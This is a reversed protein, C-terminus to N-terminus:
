RRWAARGWGADPEEGRGAWGSRAAAWRSLRVGSRHVARGRRAAQPRVGGVSAGMGCWSRTMMPLPEPLESSIGSSSPRSTAITSPPVKPPVQRFTPQMGVLINTSGASRTRRPRVVGVPEADGEGLRRDVPRADAVADEPPDVRDRGAALGVAAPLLVGGEVAGVRGEGTLAAEGQRGALLDGGVPEDDRGAAVGDAEVDVAQARGVGLVADVGGVGHHAEVGERGPHGDDAAPEDGALHRVHEGREAHGHGLHLAALGQQAVVLDLDGLAVGLDGPVAVVHPQRRGRGDASRTPSTQRIPRVPGPPGLWTSASTTSSATPRTGLVSRSSGAAAPRSTCSSPRSTTSSWSRAVAGPTQARPSTEDAWWSLCTALWSARITACLRATSRPRSAAGGRM